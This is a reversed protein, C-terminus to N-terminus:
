SKPMPFPRESSCLISQRSSSKSATKLFLSSSLKFTSQLKWRKSRRRKGEKQKRRFLSITTCQLWASCVSWPLLFVQSRLTATISRFVELSCLHCLLPHWSSGGCGPILQRFLISILLIASCMSAIPSGAMCFKRLSLPKEKLVNSVKISLWRKSIRRFSKKTILQELSTQGVKTIDVIPRDRIIEIMNLVSKVVSIQLCVQWQQVLTILTTLTDIMPIM